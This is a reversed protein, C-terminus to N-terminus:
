YSARASRNKGAMMLVIIIAILGLGLTLAISAVAWLPMELGNQVPVSQDTIPTSWGNWGGSLWTVDSPGVVDNIATLNYVNDEVKSVTFRRSGQTSFSYSKEWRDNQASWEMAENSTAM